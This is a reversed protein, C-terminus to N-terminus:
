SSVSEGAAELRARAWKEDAESKDDDRGEADSLDSRAESVDIDGKPIALEALVIVKNDRVEVFGGRVAFVEEDGGEQIVIRLPCPDLAGIFPFHEALFAIEGEVTSCVVMECEGEWLTRDPSVVEVETTAM